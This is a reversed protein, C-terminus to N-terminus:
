YNDRITTIINYTNSYFIIYNIPNEKNTFWLGFKWCEKDNNEDPISLNDIVEYIDYRRSKIDFYMDYLIIDMLHLSQNKVLLLKLVDSYKEYIKCLQNLKDFRKLNDGMKEFPFPISKVYKKNNERYYRSYFKTIQSNSVATELGDNYIVYPKNIKIKKNYSDIISIINEIDDNKSEKLLFNKFKNIYERIEKSM